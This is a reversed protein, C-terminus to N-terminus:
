QPFMKFFQPQLGNGLRPVVGFLRSPQQDITQESLAWLEALESVSFHREFSAEPSPQQFSSFSFNSESVSLKKAQM